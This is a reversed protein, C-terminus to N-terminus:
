SCGEVLYNAEITGINISDVTGKLKPKNNANWDRPKITDSGLPQGEKMHYVVQLPTDGQGTMKIDSKTLLRGSEVDKIVEFNINHTLEYLDGNEAYKGVEYTLDNNHVVMIKDPSDGVKIGKYFPITPDLIRILAVKNDIIQYLVSAREGLETDTYTLKPNSVYYCHDDVMNDRTFGLKTLLEPSVTQGFSLGQYGKPSVLERNSPSKNSTDDLDIRDQSEAIKANSKAFSTMAESIHADVKVKASDNGTESTSELSPNSASLETTNQTDAESTTPQPQCASLGVLAMSCLLSLAIFPLHDPPRLYTM